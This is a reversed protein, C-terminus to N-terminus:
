MGDARFKPLGVVIKHTQMIRLQINMHRILKHCIEIDVIIGRGHVFMTAEIEPIDIDLTFM